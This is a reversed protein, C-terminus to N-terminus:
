RFTTTGVVHCSRNRRVLDDAVDIVDPCSYAMNRTTVRAPLMRILLVYLCLTGIM